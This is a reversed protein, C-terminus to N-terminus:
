MKTKLQQLEMVIVTICPYAKEISHYTLMKSSVQYSYAYDLLNLVMTAAKMQDLAVNQNKNWSSNIINM